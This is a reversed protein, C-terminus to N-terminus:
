SFEHKLTCADELLPLDIGFGRKHSFLQKLSTTTGKWPYPAHSGWVSMEHYRMEIVGSEQFM